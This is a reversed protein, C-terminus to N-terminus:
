LSPRRPKPGADELEKGDPPPADGRLCSDAYLAIQCSQRAMQCRWQGYHSMTQAIHGLHTSEPVKLQSILDPCSMRPKVPTVM